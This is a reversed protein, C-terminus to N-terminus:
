RSSAHSDKNRRDRWCCDGMRKGHDVSDGRRGEQVKSPAEGLGDLARRGISVLIAHAHLALESRFDQGDNEGAPQPFRSTDYHPYRAGLIAHNLPRSHTSSSHVLLISAQILHLQSGVIVLATM